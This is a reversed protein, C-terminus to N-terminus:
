STESLTQTSTNPTGANVKSATCEGRTLIHWFKDMRKHSSMQTTARTPEQSSTSHRKSDMRGEIQATLTNVLSFGSHNAHAQGWSSQTDVFLTRFGSYWNVAGLLTLGRRGEMNVSTRPKALRTTNVTM